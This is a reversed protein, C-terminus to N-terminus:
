AVQKKLHAFDIGKARCMVEAIYLDSLGRRILSKIYNEYEVPDKTLYYGTNGAIVMLHGERRLFSIAKRIRSGKLAFRGGQYRALMREIASSSIARKKGYRPLRIYQGQDNKQGALERWIERAAEKEKDNLPATEDDFNYLGM